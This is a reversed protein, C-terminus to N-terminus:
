KIKSSSLDVLKYGRTKITKIEYKADQDKLKNRVRSVLRDIAWDSVGLEEVEPWVIEIIKERECIENTTNKLLNFLRNEKKTFEIKQKEEKRGERKRIYFDFLKSFIGERNLFGSNWLYEGERKDKEEIREEDIVKVMIEKEKESLSEWLEESQLMIREDRALREFLDKKDKIKIKRESLNILGLQLYQIFGDVIEFLDEETLEPLNLGYRTKYTQAIIKVDKSAAPKIYMNQCFVSLSAKDFVDPSLGDLTRYSTFIYSLKRHTSDKLGQLNSFFAPTAADKIRDFRIFFIDPLLKANIIKILAKRVNDITLFLDQSQISDLFLNEIEKELEKNLSSKNVADSIRKLTLIWFPYVEREVLDNLDVPIFLHKKGDNIYTPFINKHNLFFRLFNSIGVRKMGILVVSRRNRLHQGLKRAEDERFGIPYKAEIVSEEM